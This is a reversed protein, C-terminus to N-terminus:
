VDEAVADALQTFLLMFMELVQRICGVEEAGYGKRGVRLDHVDRGVGPFGKPAFATHSYAPFCLRSRQSNTEYTHGHKMAYENTRIQVSLEYLRHKSIECNAQSENCTPTTACQLYAHKPFRKHTQTYM